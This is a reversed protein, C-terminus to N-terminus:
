SQKMPTMELDSVSYISWEGWTGQGPNKHRLESAMIEELSSRESFAEKRRNGKERDFGKNKFTWSLM